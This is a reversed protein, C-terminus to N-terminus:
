PRFRELPNNGVAELLTQVRGKEQWEDCVGHPTFRNNLCDATTTPKRLYSKIGLLHHIYTTAKPGVRNMFFEAIPWIAQPTVIHSCHQSNKNGMISTGKQPDQM